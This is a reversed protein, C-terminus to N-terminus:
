KVIKFSATKSVSGTKGVLRYRGPKLAKGNLRGSFKFRNQGSQGSHTFSGKVPKFRSCKKKTRNAKTPKVCRKGVKRGPLRREVGFTVTAAASLSYTVITAIPAKAKKKASVIAGGVNAASFKHPALSLSQIQGAALPLVPPPVFEFAGIDPAAGLIRTNGALDLPGLLPDAVGADVTPSGAAERYDGNAVDVFLPPVTQNGAGQTITTGPEEKVLNFNSSSVVIKGPGELGETSELDVAKGDAITDKIDLTYTGPPIAGGMTARIGISEAGDAIATSSRLSGTQGGTSAAGLLAIGNSGIARAVSDRVTCTGGLVIGTGLLGTATARVRDVAGGDGCALAWGEDGDNTIELYEFRGDSEGSVLVPGPGPINANIRPPPGGPDGHISLGTVGPDPGLPEGIDYTGSGVIVEDDTKANSIANTLSCPAAKACPEPGDAPAPAAYRQAAQAAPALALATLFVAIGVRALGM